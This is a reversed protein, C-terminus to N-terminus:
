YISFKGLINFCEAHSDFNKLIPRFIEITASFGTRYIDELIINGGITPMSGDFVNRFFLFQHM